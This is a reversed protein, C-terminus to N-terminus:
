EVLPSSGGSIALLPEGGRARICSQCAAVPPSGPGSGSEQGYVETAVEAPVEAGCGICTRTAPTCGCLAGDHRVTTDAPPQDPPHVMAIPCTTQQGDPGTTILTGPTTVSISTGSADTM